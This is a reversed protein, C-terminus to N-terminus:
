HMFKRVLRGNSHMGHLDFIADDASMAEIEELSVAHTHVGHYVYNVLADKGPATEKFVVKISPCGEVKCRYSTKLVARPVADKSVRKQGYKHWSTREACCRPRKTSVLSQPLLYGKATDHTKAPILSPQNPNAHQEARQLTKDSVDMAQTAPRQENTCGHSQMAQQLLELPLECLPVEEELLSGLGFIGEFDLQEGTWILKDIGLAYEIDQLSAMPGRHQIRINGKANQALQRLPKVPSKLRGEPAILANKGRNKVRVVGAM